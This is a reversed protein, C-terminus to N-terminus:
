KRRKYERYDWLLNTLADIAAVTAKEDMSFFCEDEDNVLHLFSVFGSRFADKAVILMSDLDEPHEAGEIILCKEEPKKFDNRAINNHRSM